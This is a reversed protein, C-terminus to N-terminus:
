AKQKRKVPIWIESHYNEDSPNGDPSYWELSINGDIEYDPNGPLWESYIKTNVSQLSAPIPGICKFKAWELERIKVTKLEAPVAGGNYRGAILYNFSSCGAEDSCVGFEGIRNEIFAKEVPTEPQKGNFLPIGYQEWIEDWFQPIESYATETSFGREFGIVSFEKMKEVTFDMNNGGTITVSITIPLFVKIASPTERLQLPSIGHFRSFAKTFSEPTEYRYKYAIDIIKEKGRIVDLAALYMRRNRIYESVTFGTLIKFGKQMYFSSMFVNEAVDDANIDDYLHEEMFNVSKKMATIWEM